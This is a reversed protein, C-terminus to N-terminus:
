NVTGSSLVQMILMKLTFAHFSMMCLTSAYTKKVHPWTAPYHLASQPAQTGKKAPISSPSLGKISTFAATNCHVYVTNDVLNLFKCVFFYLLIIM